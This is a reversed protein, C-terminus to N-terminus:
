EVPTLWRDQGNGEAAWGKVKEGELEWWTLGDQKIPGGRVTFLTGLKVKAKETATKGATERVTLWQGTSTTVQVRDGLKIPRDVLKPANPAGTAAAAPAVPVLWPDNAPGTAVWGVLGAGNDIKWWALNEAQTPGELLTVVANANLRGVQKGKASAKDRINLGGGAAVRAKAGAVMGGSAQTPTSSPAPTATPAKTPVVTPAVTVAKEVTHADLAEVTVPMPKPTPTVRVQFGGCALMAMLLMALALFLPWIRPRRYM